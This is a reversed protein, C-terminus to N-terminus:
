NKGKHTHASIQEHAFKNQNRSKRSLFTTIDLFFIKVKLRVSKQIKTKFNNHDRLFLTKVKSIKHAYCQHLLWKAIRARRWPHGAALPRCFSAACHVCCAFIYFLLVLFHNVFLSSACSLVKLISCCIFLELQNKSSTPYSYETQQEIRLLM